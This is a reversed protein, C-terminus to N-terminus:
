CIELRRAYHAQGTRLRTRSLEQAPGAHQDARVSGRGAYRRGLRGASKSRASLAAPRLHAAGPAGRHSISVMGPHSPGVPQCCGRPGTHRAVATRRGRDTRTGPRHFDQHHLRDQVYCRRGSCPRRGGAVQRHGCCSAEGDPGDHIATVAGVHGRGLADITRQFLQSQAAQPGATV